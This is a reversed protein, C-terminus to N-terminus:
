VWNVAGMGLSMKRGRESFKPSQSVVPVFCFDPWGVGTFPIRTLFSYWKLILIRLGESIPFLDSFSKVSM